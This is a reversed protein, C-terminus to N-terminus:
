YKSAFVEYAKELQAALGQIVAMDHNDKAMLELARAIEKMKTAGINACRGKVAHAQFALTGYDGAAAAQHILQLSEPMNDKFLKLLQDYLEQNNNILELLFNRDFDVFPFASDASLSGQSYLHDDAAM